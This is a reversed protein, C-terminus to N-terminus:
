SRQGIKFVVPFSYFTVAGVCGLSAFPVKENRQEVQRVIKIPRQGMGTIRRVRDDGSQVRHLSPQRVQQILIADHRELTDPLREIRGYVLRYPRYVAIFMLGPNDKVFYAPPVMQTLFYEPRRADPDPPRLNPNLAYNIEPLGDPPFEVDIVPGTITLVRGESTRGEESTLREETVAM